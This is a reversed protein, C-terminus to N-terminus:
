GDRDGERCKHGFCGDSTEGVSFMLMKIEAKELEAEQRQMLTELGLIPM